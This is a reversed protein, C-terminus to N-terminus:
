RGLFSIGIGMGVRRPGRKGEFTWDRNGKSSESVGDRRGPHQRGGTPDGWNDRDLTLDCKGDRRRPLKRDFEIALESRVWQKYKGIRGFGFDGILIIGLHTPKTGANMTEPSLNLSHGRTFGKVERRARQDVSAEFAVIGSVYPKEAATNQRSGDVRGVWGVGVRSRM